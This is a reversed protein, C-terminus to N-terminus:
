RPSNQQATCHRLASEVELGAADAYERLSEVDSIQSLAVQGLGTLMDMRVTDDFARVLDPKAEEFTMPRAEEVSDVRVIFLGEEGYSNRFGVAGVPATFIETTIKSNSPLGEVRADRGSQAVKGSVVPLEAMAAAEELTM